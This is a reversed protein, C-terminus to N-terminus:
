GFDVGDDSSWKASGDLKKVEDEPVGASRLTALVKEKTYGPFSWRVPPQDAPPVFVFEDPVDIAFLMSDIQGWPGKKGTIWEQPPPDAPATGSASTPRLLRSAPWTPRRSSKSNGSM